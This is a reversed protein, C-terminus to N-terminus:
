KKTPMVCSRNPKASCSLKYFDKHNRIDTGALVNEPKILENLLKVKESTLSSDSSVTNINKLANRLSIPDCKEPQSPPRIIKFDGSRGQQSVNCNANHPCANYRAVQIAIQNQIDNLNAQLDSITGSIKFTGDEYPVAKLRTAEQVDLYKNGAKDTVAKLTMLKMKIEQKDARAESVSKVLANYVDEASTLDEVAKLYTETICKQLQLERLSQKKAKLNELTTADTSSNSLRENLTNIELTLKECESLQGIGCCVINQKQPLNESTEGWSPTSPNGKDLGNITSYSQCMKAPDDASINMWANNGEVPVYVSGTPLYLPDQGNSAATGCFPSSNDTNYVGGAKACEEADLTNFGVRPRGGPGVDCIEDARCLRGGRLECYESAAPHSLAQKRDYKPDIVINRNQTQMCWGWKSSDKSDTFCWGRGDPRVLSFSGDANATKSLCDTASYNIGNLSQPVCVGAQINQSVDEQNNANFTSGYYPTKLYDSVIKIEGDSLARDYVAFAGVDAAWDYNETSSGGIEAPQGSLLTTWAIPSGEVAKIGNIYISKRNLTGSPLNDDLTNLFTQRMEFSPSRRLTYVSYQDFPVKVQVRQSDGACCGNSDFYMIGDTWTSHAFIGRQYPVEGRFRFAQNTSLRNTKCVIFITYGGGNQDIGFADSPPGTLGNGNIDISKFVGNELKPNSRFVFDNGRGSLDKWNRDNFKASRSDRADLLCTLGRPVPYRPLTKGLQLVDAKRLNSRYQMLIDNFHRTVSKVDDDSLSVNWLAFAAAAGKYNNFLDVNGIGLDLESAVKSNEAIKHGNIWISQIAGRANSTRRCVIINLGYANPCDNLLLRSYVNSPAGWGQDFCFGLKWTLSYPLHCSLGHPEGNTSKFSCGWNDSPGYCQSVIAFTFGNTGDGLAFSNSPNGRAVVGNLDTTMFKGEAYRPVGDWVFHRNNGSIDKWIRSKGEPNYSEIISANLYIQLFNISAEPLKSSLQDISMSALSFPDDKSRYLATTTKSPYAQVETVPGLEPSQSSKCTMTKQDAPPKLASETTFFQGESGEAIRWSNINTPLKTLGYQVCQQRGDFNCSEYALIACFMRIVITGTQGIKLDDWRGANLTAILNQKKADRYFDVSQGPPIMIGRVYEFGPRGDRLKTLVIESQNGLIQYDDLNSEDMEVNKYIRVARSDPSEVRYAQWMTATSIAQPPPVSELVLSTRDNVKSGSGAMTKKVWCNGTSPQLVSGVAGTTSKGLDGCTTVSQGGVMKIDNYPYDVGVLQKISVIPAANQTPAGAILGLTWNDKPDPFVKRKAGNPAILYKGTNVHQLSFKSNKNWSGGNQISVRWNSNSDDSEKYGFGTVETYNLNDDCDARNPHSHLNLGEFTHELRIVDGSRVTQGNNTSGSGLPGKVKWMTRYNRNLALSVQRQGSTGRAWYNMWDLLLFSNTPDNGAASVNQLEITSGYTIPQDDTSFYETHKTHNKHRTYTWITISSLGLLGLWKVESKVACGIM